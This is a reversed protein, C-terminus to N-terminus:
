RRPRHRDEVGEDEGVVHDDRGDGLQRGVQALLDPAGVAVIGDRARTRPRWRADDIRPRRRQELAEPRRRRDDIGHDGETGGLADVWALQEVVREEHETAEDVLTQEHGGVGLECVRDGAREDRALRHATELHELGHVHDDVRLDVERLRPVSRKRGHLDGPRARLFAHVPRESVLGCDQVAEVPAHVRPQQIETQM